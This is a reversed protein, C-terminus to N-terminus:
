SLETLYKRGMRALRLRNRAASRKAFSVETAESDDYDSDVSVVEDAFGLEVAKKAPFLTGDVSGDLYGEVKSKDMGTRKSYIEILHNDINSLWEATDKMVKVNGMAFGWARHIGIDSAEYMRIRDAAMVVFSAASYALGEITATVKGTHSALSNYIQLGDYVLGGPSNVVLNVPKGENAKLVSRVQSATIGDIEDGITDHILIEVSEPKAKAQVRFTSDSVAARIGDPIDLNFM